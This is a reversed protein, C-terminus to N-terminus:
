YADPLTRASLPTSRRPLNTVAGASLRSPCGRQRCPERDPLRDRMSRLMRRDDVVVLTRAKGTNESSYNQLIAANGTQAIHNHRAPIRIPTREM